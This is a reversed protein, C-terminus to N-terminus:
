HEANAEFHLVAILADFPMAAFRLATKQNPRRHLNTRRFVRVEIEHGHPVCQIFARAELAKHDKAVIKAADHSTAFVVVLRCSGSRVLWSSPVAPMPAALSLLVM